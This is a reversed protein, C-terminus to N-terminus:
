ETFMPFEDLVGNAFKVIQLADGVNLDEDLDVDAAIKDRETAGNVIEEVENAFKVIQLADAVNAAGDCDFDGGVYLQLKYSKDANDVLTLTKTEADYSSSKAGTVTFNSNELMSHDVNNEADNDIVKTIVPAIAGDETKKVPGKGTGTTVDLGNGDVVATLDVAENGNADTIKIVFTTTGPDPGPGPEEGQKEEVTITVTKTPDNKDTIKVGNEGVKEVTVDGTIKNLMDAIVDKLTDKAVEVTFGSPGMTVNDSLEVGDATSVIKIGYTTNEYSFIPLATEGKVVVDAEIQSGEEKIEVKPSGTGSVPVGYFLDYKGANAGVPTLGVKTNAGIGESVGENVKFKITFLTGATETAWSTQNKDAEAYGALGAVGALKIRGIQAATKVGDAEGQYDTDGEAPKIAMQSSILEPLILPLKGAVGSMTYSVVENAPVEEAGMLTLVEPDFDIFFTYNNIGTVDNLKYSVTFEDGSKINETATSEVVLTGDGGVVPPKPDDPTGPNSVTEDVSLGVNAIELTRTKSANDTKTFFAAQDLYAIGLGDAALSFDTNGSEDVIRVGDIYANIKGNTFDVEIQAKVKKNEAKVKSSLWSGAGAKNRLAWNGDADIGLAIIDTRAEEATKGGLLEIVAVNNLDGSATVDSEFHLVNSIAKKGFNFYLKGNGTGPEIKISGSATYTAKIKEDAYVEDTNTTSVASDATGATTFGKNDGVVFEDPKSEQKVTVTFEITGKNEDTGTVTVVNGNASAGAIKLSTAAANIATAVKGANTYKTATSKLVLKGTAADSSEYVESGSFETIKGKEAKVILANDSFTFSIDTIAPTTPTVEGSKVTVTFEFTDSGKTVVVKDGNAEAKDIGLTTKQNNMDSAVDSATKFASTNKLVLKGTAADSTADVDDGSFTATGNEVKISLAAGSATYNFSIASPTIIEDGGPTGEATVKINDVCLVRNTNGSGRVTMMSVTADDVAVNEAVVVDDVTCSVKKEKTDVTFKVKRFKNLDSDAFGVTGPGYYADTGIKVYLKAGDIKNSASSVTGNLTGTGDTKNNGSALSIDVGGTKLNVLNMSSGKAEAMLDIEYTVKDGSVSSVPVFFEPNASNYDAIRVYTNEGEKVYYGYIPTDTGPTPTSSSNSGGPIKDGTSLKGAGNTVDVIKHSMYYEGDQVESQLGIVDGAKKDEFDISISNEAANVFVTGAFSSTILMTGALIKSIARKFEKKM